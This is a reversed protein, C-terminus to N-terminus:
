SEDGAPEDESAAEGEKPEVHVHGLDLKEHDLSDHYQAAEEETAKNVWDLTVGHRDLLHRRVKGAEVPKLKSRTFKKDTEPTLYVEEIEGMEILTFNTKGKPKILIGMENSAQVTGEVEESTEGKENAEKLNRVITVKKSVLTSYDTREITAQSM